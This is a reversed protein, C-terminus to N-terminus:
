YFFFFTTGCVIFAFRTIFSNMPFMMMETVKMAVNSGKKQEVTSIYVCSFKLYMELRTQGM